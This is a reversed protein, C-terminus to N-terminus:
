RPETIGEGWEKILADQSQQIKFVKSTHTIRLINHYIIPCGKVLVYGLGAMGYMIVWVSPNSLYHSLLSWSNGAEHLEAVYPLVGSVNCCAITSGNLKTQSTDAYFAVITPLIGMLILVFTSKLLIILVICAIILLLFPVKRKKKKDPSATKKGM